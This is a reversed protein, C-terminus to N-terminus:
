ANIRELRLYQAPKNDIKGVTPYNVGAMNWYVEKDSLSVKFSRLMVALVVETQNDAYAPTVYLFCLYMSMELQSFKFGSRVRTLVISWGLPSSAISPRVHM